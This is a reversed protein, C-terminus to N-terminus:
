VTPAPKRIECWLSSGDVEFVAAVASLTKALAEFQAATARGAKFGDVCVITGDRSNDRDIAGLLGEAAQREFWAFREPWFGDCYTSLLLLGGPRLVRWAARLVQAQDVGFACIGNQVCAVADFYGDEFELSRADMLLFDCKGDSLSRAMAVSDEAVDIGVVKRAVEAIRLAVRGYGCGLELVREAGRLRGLLHLIECELYRQVRPPAVAYCCQLREGALKESYYSM